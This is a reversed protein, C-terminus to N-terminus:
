IVSYVKGTQPVGNFVFRNRAECEFEGGVALALKNSALNNPDCVIELRTLKLQEFCFDILAELAEKGVGQGQFEDAIWYGLSAMNFTHYFENVAVMGLLQHSDRAFIAFGLANGKVWSLRTARIFDEADQQDFDGHCWDIWQHLTPSDQIAISLESAHDLAFLGLKLRPTYIVYDVQM